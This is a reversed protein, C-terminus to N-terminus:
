DIEEKNENKKFNRISLYIAVGAILWVSVVLYIWRGNDTASVNIEFCAYYTNSSNVSVSDVIIDNEPCLNSLSWGIFEYGERKPIDSPLLLKCTGDELVECATSAFEINNSIFRFQYIVPVKEEFSNGNSINNDTNNENKSSSNSNGSNNSNGSSSSGNGSSAGGSSSGSGSGSTGSGLGTGGNNSEITGSNETEEGSNVDGSSGTGEGSDEGDSSNNEDDLTDDTSSDDGPIENEEGDIVDEDTEDQIDDKDVLVWQAYLTLNSTVTITDNEIYEIGTGDNLTNWGIFLYGEPVLFMNDLVNYTRLAGYEITYDSNTYNEPWNSSYVVKYPYQIIGTNGGFGAQTGKVDTGFYCLTMFLLITFVLVYFYSQQNEIKKIVIRSYKM